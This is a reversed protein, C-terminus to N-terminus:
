LNSKAEGINAGKKSLSIAALPFLYTASKMDQKAEFSGEHLFITVKLCPNDSLSHIHMM